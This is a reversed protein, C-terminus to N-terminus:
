LIVWFDFAYGKNVFAYPLYFYGDDGWEKSWSNRVILAGKMTKDIFLGKVTNVIKSKTKGPFFDDDYGVVLVAHGGLNKENPTPLPVIGTKAVEASEFSEFVQMGILVPLRYANLYSKIDTLSYISRYGSITHKLADAEAEPSPPNKFKSTDYPFYKEECVGYKNLAKCISRMTAGSDEDLTGEISREKYYLFLRSLLPINEIDTYKKKSELMMMNVVGANATCSGLELQNFIEPNEDRLDVCNPLHVNVNMRSFYALDRTDDNQKKVPYIRSM